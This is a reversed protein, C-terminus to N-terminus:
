GKAGRYRVSAGRMDRKLGWWESKTKGERGGPQQAHFRVRVGSDRHPKRPLPLMRQVVRPGGEPVHHQPLAQARACGDPVSPEGLRPYALYMSVRRYATHHM